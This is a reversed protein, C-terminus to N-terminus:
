CDLSRYDFKLIRLDGTLDKADIGGETCDILYRGLPVKLVGCGAATLTELAYKLADRDNTYGDGMAGADEKLDVVVPTQACVPLVSFTFSVVLFCGVIVMIRKGNM